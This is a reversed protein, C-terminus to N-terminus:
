SKRGGLWTRKLKEHYSESQTDREPPFYLEMNYLRRLFTRGLSVVMLAFNSYGTIKQIELLSLSERKSTTSIIERAKLLKKEPLRIVM